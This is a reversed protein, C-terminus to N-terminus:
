SCATSEWDEWFHQGVSTYTSFTASLPLPLSATLTHWSSASLLTRSAPGTQNTRELSSGESQLADATSAVAAAAAVARYSALAAASSRRQRRRRSVSPFFNQRVGYFTFLGVKSTWLTRKGARWHRVSHWRWTVGRRATVWGKRLHSARTTSWDPSPKIFSAGYESIGGSLCLLSLSCRRWM